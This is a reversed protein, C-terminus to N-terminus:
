ASAPTDLLAKNLCGTRGANSLSAARDTCQRVTCNAAAFCAGMRTAAQVLDLYRGQYRGIGVSQGWIVAQDSDVGQLIIRAPTIAAFHQRASSQTDAVLDALHPSWVLRVVNPELRHPAAIGLQAADVPGIVLEFGAQGLLKRAQVLQDIGLVAPMLAIRIGFRM